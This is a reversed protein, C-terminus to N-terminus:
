YKYLKLKENDGFQTIFVSSNKRFQEVQVLNNNGYQGIKLRNNKNHQVAAAYNNNGYQYISATASSISIYKSGQKIEAFNNNGIQVIVAKKPSQLHNNYNFDFNYNFNQYIVQETNIDYYLEEIKYNNNLSNVNAEQAYVPLAIIFILLLCFVSKLNISNLLM